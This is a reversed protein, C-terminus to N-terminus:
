APGRKPRHREAPTRGASCWVLGREVLGSSRPPYPLASRWPAKLPHSTPTSSASSTATILALGIGITLARPQHEAPVAFTAIIIVFVFLNDVSLSKEVLYGAYYQGALDWGAVAGFV